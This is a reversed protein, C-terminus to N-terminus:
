GVPHGRLVAFGGGPVALGAAPRGSVLDHADPGLGLRAPDIWRTGAGHNTVFVWAGGDGVRRVVDLEPEPFPGTGAAEAILSGLGRDTLRASVYWAEGAGYRHRTVAPEGDLQGGAYRAVAEAGALHVRESWLTV